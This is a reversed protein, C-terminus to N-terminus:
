SQPPAATTTNQKSTYFSALKNVTPQVGELPVPGYKQSPLEMRFFVPNAVQEATSFVTVVNGNHTTAWGGRSHDHSRIIWRLNNAAIFAETVDPGWTELGRRTLSPQMGNVESPDTWLLDKLLPTADPSKHTLQCWLFTLPVSTCDCRESQRISELTVYSGIGGHCVFWGKMEPDEPFNVLTALPLHKYLEACAEWLRMGNSGYVEELCQYHNNQGHSSIRPCEHNGRNLYVSRPYATVLLCLAALIDVGFAGRDVYDGNFIWLNSDSPEGGIAIAKKLCDWSGHLDGVINISSVNRTVAVENLLSRKKLLDTAETIFKKHSTYLYAIHTSDRLPSFLLEWNGMLNSKFPFYIPDPPAISSHQTDPGSASVRAPRATQPVQQETYTMPSGLQDPGRFPSLSYLNFLQPAGRKGETDECTVPLEPQQPPYPSDPTDIPSDCALPEDSLPHPSYFSLTLFSYLPCAPATYVTKNNAYWKTSGPPEETNSLFKVYWHGCFVPFKYYRWHEAVHEAKAYYPVMFVRYVNQQMVFYWPHPM